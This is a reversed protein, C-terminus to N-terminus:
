IKVGKELLSKKILNHTFFLLFIGIILSINHAIPISRTVGMEHLCGVLNDKEIYNFVRKMLPAKVILPLSDQYTEYEKNEWLNWSIVLVQGYYIISPRSPNYKKIKSFIKKLIEEQKERKIHPSELLFSTLPLMNKIEAKKIFNNVHEKSAFLLTECELNKYENPKRGAGGIEKEFQVPLKPIKPNCSSM